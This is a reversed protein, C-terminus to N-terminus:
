ESSILSRLLRNEKIKKARADIGTPSWGFNDHHIAYTNDSKASMTFTVCDMPYFFTRPVFANGNIIQLCGNFEVGYDILARRIFSPQFYVKFGDKTNPLDVNAYLNLLRDLLENKPESGIVALDITASNSFPLVARNSLLSDLPRLLEVDMDLYFGGYERLVDLRAYDAAFAWAGCEIARKVFPNKDCDYNDRNWEIIKYGPCVDGWTDFCRKYEPPKEEGSFWFGHIIKPIRATGAEANENIVTALAKESEADTSHAKQELTMFALCYCDIDGECDLACLQQYMDYM